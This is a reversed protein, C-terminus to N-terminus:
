PSFRRTEMSCHFQHPPVVVFGRRLAAQQVISNIKIWRHSSTTHASPRLLPRPSNWVVGTVGSNAYLFGCVFGLVAGQHIRVWALQIVSLWTSGVPLLNLESVSSLQNSEDSTEAAMQDVWFETSRCVLLFMSVHAPRIVFNVKSHINNVYEHQM